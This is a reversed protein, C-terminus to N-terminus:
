AAAQSRRRRYAGFALGLGGLGLLALSSPEPVASPHLTNQYITQVENATLANDYIAVDTVLGNFAGVLSQDALKIGGVLFPAIAAPLPNM